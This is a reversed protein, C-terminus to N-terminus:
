FHNLFLSSQLHEFNNNLNNKLKKDLFVLNINFFFANIERFDSLFFSLVEITNGFVVTISYRGRCALILVRTVVGFVFL